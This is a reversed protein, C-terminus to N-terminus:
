SVRCQDSWEQGCHRWVQVHVTSLPSKRRFPAKEVLKDGILSNRCSNISSIPIRTELHIEADTLGKSGARELADLIRRRKMGSTLRAVAAGQRESEPANRHAFGIRADVEPPFDFITAQKM